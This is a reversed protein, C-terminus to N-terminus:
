VEINLELELKTKLFNLTDMEFSFQKNEPVKRMLKRVQLLFGDLPDEKKETLIELLKDPLDESDEGKSGLLSNILNIYLLLKM